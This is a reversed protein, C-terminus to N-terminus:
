QESLCFQGRKPQHVSTTRTHKTRIITVFMVIHLVIHSTDKKGVKRMTTTSVFENSLQGAGTAYLTLEGLGWRANTDFGNPFSTKMEDGKINLQPSLKLRFFRATLSLSSLRCNDIVSQM